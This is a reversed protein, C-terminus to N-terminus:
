CNCINTSDITSYIAKKYTKYESLILKYNTFFDNMKGRRISLEMQFATYKLEEADVQGFQDKMDHIIRGMCEMEDKWMADTLDDFLNDLKLIASSLTNLTQRGMWRNNYYRVNKECPDPDVSDSIGSVVKHILNFLLEMVVPKSIFEDMGLERYRDKEGYFTFATMAIIPTHYITNERMRIYKTADIGDMVPMQIDMLIVDYRKAAHAKLAELGNNVMDVSYEKAMLMRSLICQSLMDDEVLLIDYRKNADTLEMGKM